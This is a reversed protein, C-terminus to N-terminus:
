QYILDDDTLSEAEEEEDSEYEVKARKIPPEHKQIGPPKDKKFEYVLPYIHEVAHQM